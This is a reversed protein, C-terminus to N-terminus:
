EGEWIIIPGLLGSSQLPITAQPRGTYDNRLVINTSTYHKGLPNLEDGAVRNYWSNVVKIEITNKGKKLEHSIDVSFPQTWVTGKDIGNIKITAIGVDKVNGLSLYYTHGKKVGFTPKFAKNYVATGSYYKIGDNANTSWDSLTPFEVTEPGGWKSDFHVTWSGEITMLQRLTPYNKANTGQVTTDIPNNFCIIISGYPNFTLPLTTKGDHQAFATALRKEGTLANWIEPQHGITRFTCHV